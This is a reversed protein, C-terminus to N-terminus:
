LWTALANTLRFAAGTGDTEFGVRQEPEGSATFKVGAPVQFQRTPFVFM